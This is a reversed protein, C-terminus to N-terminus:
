FSYSLVTKIFSNDRYQGLEGDKDGAFIGASVEVTVDGKTWTVAPIIYCDKDEIGWIATARLELANRFFSRSLSATLRTSTIGTGAEIDFLSDTGVKDDLLRISENVQLNVNIGVVPIDRDFGFSWAISPNYVLGDDGALDATINAALEARVNFGFLVQAYDLGIHHYRNYGVSVLKEPTLAAQVASQAAAATDAATAYLGAVTQYAAGDAAYAGAATTFAGLAAIVQPSGSGYAATALLLDRQADNYAQESATFAAQRTEFDAKLMGVAIIATDLDAIAKQAAAYGGKNVGAAPRSLYGNYYQVGFDVPGLTTTFRLGGQIYELGSTKPVLKSQDIVPTEFEGGSQEMAENIATTLNSRILTEMDGAFKSLQAPAWRGDQSFKAGEFWPVFVGEVKSFNGFGYSAHILPSAIKISPIDSMKSLDTYDLPNIVDLPGLTDAKGWTLKRLGGEINFGGFFARIYAEDISLIQAPDAFNPSLNLNIVGEANSGSANFNLAATFLDSLDAAKLKDLDMGDDFFFQLGASVKGGIGAGTILKGGTTNSDVSAGSEDGFGFGDQAHVPVVATSLLAAAIVLPLVDAKVVLRKM